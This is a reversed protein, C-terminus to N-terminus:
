TTQPPTRGPWPRTGAKCRTNQRELRRVQLRGGCKGLLRKHVDQASCSPINVSPSLSSWHSGLVLYGICPDQHRGCLGAARRSPGRMDAQQLKEPDGPSAAHSHRNNSTPQPSTTATSRAGEGLLREGAVARVPKLGESHVGTGAKGLASTGLM